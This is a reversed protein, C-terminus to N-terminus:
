RYVGLEWKMGEDVLDFGVLKWAHSFSHSLGHNAHCAWNFAYQMIKFSELNPKKQYSELAGWFADSLDRDSWESFQEGCHYEKCKDILDSTYKKEQEELEKFTM